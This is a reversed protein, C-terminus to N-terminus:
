YVKTMLMTMMSRLNAVMGGSKRSYKGRFRYIHGEVTYNANIELSDQPMSYKVYLKGTVELTIVTSDDTQEIVIESNGRIADVAYQYVQKPLATNPAEPEAPTVCPPVQEPVPMAVQEPPQTDSFPFDFAPLDPMQKNAPKPKIRRATKIVKVAIKKEKEKAM